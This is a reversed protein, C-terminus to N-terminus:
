IVLVDNSSCAVIPETNVWNLSGILEFNNRHDNLWQDYLNIYETQQKDESFASFMNKLDKLNNTNEEDSCNGHLNLAYKLALTRLITSTTQASLTKGDHLKMTVFTQTTPDANLWIAKHWQRGSQEIYRLSQPIEDVILHVSQTTVCGDDAVNFEHNMRAHNYLSTSLNDVISVTDCFEDRVSSTNVHIWVPAGQLNNSIHMEVLTGMTPFRASVVSSNFGQVRLFADFGEDTLNNNNVTKYLTTEDIFTRNSLDRGTFMVRGRPLNNLGFSNATAVMKLGELLSNSVFAPKENLNSPIWVFQQYMKDLSTYLVQNRLPSEFKQIIASMSISDFM